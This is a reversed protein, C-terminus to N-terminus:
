GSSSRRSLPRLPARDAGHRGLRAEAVREVIADEVKGHAAHGWWLLVDTKALRAETLGHEPQDLTATTAKIDKDENLAAAITAHMGDPYIARM